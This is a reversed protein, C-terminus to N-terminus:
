ANAGAKRKKGTVLAASATMKTYLDFLKELRETDNKFRRGIYIRELVEDNRDHAARLDAPMNEPAYLDAITAPFHHERALLIEEACRTLDAKNKETLTPVPFTNWGLTNSYRYRTELKGCVTAIWILHLRSAILAMNWLPADYLAFALNSVVTGAPEYGCPLYERSESSVSPVVLTAYKGIFMRQFQHAREAIDRATKGGNLRLNRVGCIRQALPPIAQAEALHQDEIWLCYRELGRIFEASGVIRRVFRCLQGPTLQLADREDRSLLLLGGDIPTNGFTMESIASLPQSAKEVIVSEGLALYANIHSGQREITNGSSDLSFLRRPSRPQTTIGVIAVSVGANHSALNAWRFSTHAFEIQCGRDFIAPWLVPVQLGQCISNTTVFAAISRTNTCYDTAKMLWGAVYDLSKWNGVRKDFLLQLDAKQEDKQDRSGLYPPNGCIYTEGGENEFAIEAQDLPSGFLDDAGRVKVGTGTPPCISLWDLRLANGCTIWNENRLPLFEALALKQGRYLVDCQYEAIVLALRAIEAPFDRLEIGRFNTLPIDSARDPEGRRKNIEAEIARMEKYAIVLFNGSGCAPDFVRIKAIRKRLNLLMRANDGAEELKARLDDLFLPNLVKLINPVSTYHMGLEGREEDEAVAQIMSGFIDPNIKTWDLSGVHLLYSRAIKSFRPVEDGGSFLQGNVYPFDEAWRPIKAAARDERKTNMARFLTALVEHTNSSDKASMQAVTETFRGKGVFIDTDEAFFCFILRAMLKNMDHRREATGWEPNDKLLEVYLRNLRSTARIDFANESIQRVTSIGALPLFFGFHDPFDKFACAVTLGSTLDEAEFDVGDTALIFRAKAKATAPSAKLAKLATTVQGANCTLIHINSTQLVGGLDSKNSAGARLRKITTEKNGFAELFAYPFEASDFSQEALDTIAQEIEVANM